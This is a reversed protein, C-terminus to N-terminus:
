PPLLLPVMLVSVALVVCTSSMGICAFDGFGYNGPTVVLTNVPTEFRSHQRRLEAASGTADTRDALLSGDTIRVRHARDALRYHAVWDHLSPRAVPEEAGSASRGALWRRAFVMYLVGLILIPAGFPTFSFFRFGSAGARVLESKVVLNPATAVLTTIGSILAALSLPMMLQSPPTGTNQCIRIVIPVFIAVVGTSSMVAGLVGVVLMLLVLLKTESSGARLSM